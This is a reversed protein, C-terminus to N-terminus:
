SDPLRHEPFLVTFSLTRSIIIKCVGYTSDRVFSPKCSSTSGHGVRCIWRPVERDQGSSIYVAQMM